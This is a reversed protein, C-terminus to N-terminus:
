KRFFFIGHDAWTRPLVREAFPELLFSAGLSLARVKIYAAYLCPRNGAFRSRGVDSPSTDSGRPGVAVALRAVARDILAYGNAHWQVLQGGVEVSWRFWESAASGDAGRTKEFLVVLGGPATVRFLEAIAAPRDEHKLCQLVKITYAADFSADGVPIDRVDGLIVDVGDDNAAARKLLTPSIDMGILSRGRATLWFWRGVGCGADLVRSGHPLHRELLRVGREEIRMHQRAIAAPGEVAVARWDQGGGLYPRARREWYTPSDRGDSIV